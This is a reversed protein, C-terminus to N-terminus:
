LIRCSHPWRKRFYVNFASSIHSLNNNITIGSNLATIGLYDAERTKMVLLFMVKHYFRLLNPGLIRLLLYILHLSYTVPHFQVERFYSQGSSYVGIYLHMMLKVVILWIAFHVTNWNCLQIIPLIWFLEYFSTRYLFVNELLLYLSMSTRGIQVVEGVFDGVLAM